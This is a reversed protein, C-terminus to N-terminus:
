KKGRRKKGGAKKGRGRGANRTNRSNSSSSAQANMAGMVESMFLEEFLDEEDFMGAGGQFMFEKFEGECFEKFEEEHEEMLHRIADERPIRKDCINCHVKDKHRRGKPESLHKDAFLEIQMAAVEEEDEPDFGDIDDDSDSDFMFGGGFPMGMGMGMGGPGVDFQVFGGPMGHMGGGVFGPM